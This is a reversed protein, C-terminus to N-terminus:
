HVAGEPVCGQQLCCSGSQSCMGHAWLHNTALWYVNWQCGTGIETSTHLLHKSFM